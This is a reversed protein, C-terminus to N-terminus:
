VFTDVNTGIPSKAELATAKAKDERHAEAEKAAAVALDKAVADVPTDVPKLKGARIQLEQESKETARQQLLAVEAQVEAIQQSIAKAEESSSGTPDTTSVDKLQSNLLVLQKQLAPVRSSGSSAGSSSSGSNSNIVNSVAATASVSSVATTM